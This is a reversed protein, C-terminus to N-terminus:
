KGYLLKQRYFKSDKLFEINLYDEGYEELLTHEGSYLNVGLGLRNGEIQVGMAALTTPFMDLTTYERESGMNENKTKENIVAIYTKRTANDAIYKQIYDSDM